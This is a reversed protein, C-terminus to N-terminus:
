YVSIQEVEIGDCVAMHLVMLELTTVEMRSEVM